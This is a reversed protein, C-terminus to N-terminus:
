HNKDHGARNDLDDHNLYTVKQSKITQTNLHPPSIREM